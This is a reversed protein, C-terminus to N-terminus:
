ALAGVLEERRTDSLIIDEQEPQKKVARLLGSQVIYLCDGDDDQHILTDGGKLLTIECQSALKKIYTIPLAKLFEITKLLKILNQKKLSFNNM